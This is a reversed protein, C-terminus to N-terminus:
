EVRCERELWEWVKRGVEDDRADARPEGIRAWPIGYQGGKVDPATGLYLEVNWGDTNIGPSSSPFRFTRTLAGLSAPYTLLPEVWSMMRVFFSQKLHRPLDTKLDVLLDTM